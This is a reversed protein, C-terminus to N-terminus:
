FTKERATLWAIQVSMRCTGARPGTRQYPDLRDVMVRLYYVSAAEVWAMGIAFVAVLLWRTRARAPHKM